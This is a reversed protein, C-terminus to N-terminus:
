KNIDKNTDHHPTMVERAREKYGEVEPQDFPNVELLSALLMTEQMAYLMFAGLERETIKKLAVTYFPLKRERYTDQISQFLVAQVHSSKELLDDTVVFSTLTGEGSGFRLQLVAHLDQTGVSVVPELSIHAPKKDKTEAKGLSEAMLARQWKGLSELEPHFFFLDHVRAGQHYAIARIAATHSMEDGENIKDGVGACFSAVDVGAAVLPVLGTVTFAAYRDPILEHSALQPWQQKTAMKALPTGDLTIVGVRPEKNNHARRFAHRAYELNALVEITTGSKSIVVIVFAGAEVGALYVGLAKHEEEDITELFKVRVANTDRMVASLVAKSANTSGGIGIVLVDKVGGGILKWWSEARAHEEQAFATDLFTEACAHQKACVRATDRVDIVRSAQLAVKTEDIGVSDGKWLIRM